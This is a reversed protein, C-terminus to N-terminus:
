PYASAFSDLADEASTLGSGPFLLLRIIGFSDGERGIESIFFKKLALSEPRKM